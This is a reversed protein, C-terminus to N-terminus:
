RKAILERAVAADAGLIDADDIVDVTLSDLNEDDSHADAPVALDVCRSRLPAPLSRFFTYYESKIRCAAGALAHGCDALVYKSKWRYYTAASIGHKRTQAVAVGAEGEKLIGVIQSETFRSKKM